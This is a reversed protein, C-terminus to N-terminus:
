DKIKEKKYDSELEEVSIEAISNMYIKEATKLFKSDPYDNKFAFYEDVVDRYREQKLEELSHEALRYKAKFILISLDEKMKMSTSPYDLLANQATIISSLYNNGLYTGLNYYLKASLYEKLVLKDQLLLIMTQAEEKRESFPYEEIYLSLEQLAKYTNTQDLRAEPTDLFLAKGSLFRAMESYKGSPYSNYYTIFTTSATSYDRQKFFSLGLLYLSEEAKDTGKMITILETLLTAAKNYQGRYFYQKSSEYKYEYDRSKLLKNYSGCSTCLVGVMLLPIIIKKRM